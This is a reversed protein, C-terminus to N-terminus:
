YRIGNEVYFKCLALAEGWGAACELQRARGSPTDRYGSEVLRVITGGGEERLEIRVTIAYEPGDPHWDFAFLNPRSCELVAGADEGTYRDPGWERWRFVIRGGPRPDVEAGTTFWGDLGEASALADFVREAPARVLVSTDLAHSVITVASM